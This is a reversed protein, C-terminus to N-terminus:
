ATRRVFEAIVTGLQEGADEQLFHGGGEIIVPEHAAAGPIRARMLADVGATIPDSDSYATLFPREFRSLSAWARDQAPTEPNDPSQPILDPMAHPGAQYDASPFPADYAALVEPALESRCGSQVLFGVPLEPTGAVFDRFRWWTEPLQHHGDPLGTNTAVVRAFRDPHEAVLRLGILGGWDHGVLTLDRLDLADFLAARIWEVHASYTHHQVEAPKDSRGFGVLDPAIVRLGADLLPPMVHRWLFCWSPEGHMLVVVPADPAGEDLYHVRLGDGVDCYRPAFPFEALGAFREDPTRLVSM